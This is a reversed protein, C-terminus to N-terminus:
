SKQHQCLSAMAQHVNSIDISLVLNISKFNVFYLLDLRHGNVSGDNKGCGEEFEVGCWEGSAFETPGRFRLIGVRSGSANKVIVRDNIEPKVGLFAFFLFNILFNM